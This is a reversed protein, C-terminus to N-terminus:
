DKSPTVDIPPLVAANPKHAVRLREILGAVDGELVLSIHEETKVTVEQKAGYLRHERREAIWSWAKFGERAQALSLADTSSEIEGIKSMLEQALMAGRAQEAEVNGVLWSRLTSAPIGYSEAIQTTTEGKLIREPAELIIQSRKNPDLHQFPTLERSAPERRAKHRIQRPGRKVGEDIRVHSEAM